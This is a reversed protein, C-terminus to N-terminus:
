WVARELALFTALVLILLLVTVLLDRRLARRWDARNLAAVAVEREAVFRRFAGEDELVRVGKARNCARCATVLNNPHDSGGLAHPFFHDLELKVAHGRRRGCYRCTHGDRAYVMRRVAVPIHDRDEGRRASRRRRRRWRVIWLWAVVGLGACAAVMLWADERLWGAVLAAALLGAAILALRNWGM